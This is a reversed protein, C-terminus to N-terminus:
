SFTPKRLSSAVLPQIITFSKTIPRTCKTSLYGRGREQFSFYGSEHRTNQYFLFRRVRLDHARKSGLSSIIGIVNQRDTKQFGVIAM